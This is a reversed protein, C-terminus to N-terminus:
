TRRKVCRNILPDLVYGQPCHQAGGAVKDLEEDNLHKLEENLSKIEKTQEEKNAM